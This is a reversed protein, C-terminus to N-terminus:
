NEIMYCIEDIMRDITRYNENPNLTYYIIKQILVRNSISMGHEELLINKMEQMWLKENQIFARAFLSPYTQRYGNNQYTNILQKLRQKFQYSLKYKKLVKIFAYFDTEKM